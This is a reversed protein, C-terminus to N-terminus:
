LLKGFTSQWFAEFGMGALGLAAGIGLLLLTVGLAFGTDWPRRTWMLYYGVGAAVLAAAFAILVWKM